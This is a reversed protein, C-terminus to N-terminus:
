LLCRGGRATIGSMLAEAYIEPAAGGPEFSDLEIIGRVVTWNGTPAESMGIVMFTHKM